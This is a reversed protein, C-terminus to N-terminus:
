RSEPSQLQQISKHREEDLSQSIAREQEIEERTRFVHGQATLEARSRQLFEWWTEEDNGRVLPRILVEVPGSPLAPPEKLELTGDPKLIGEVLVQISSM